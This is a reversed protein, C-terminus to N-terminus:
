FSCSPGNITVSNRDLSGLQGEYLIDNIYKKAFIQQLPNMKKLDNVWMKALHEYNDQTFHCFEEQSCQVSRSRKSIPEEIESDSPDNFIKPSDPVLLYETCIDNVGPESKTITTLDDYTEQNIIFLMDNFYWLPSVFNQGSEKSSHLKKLQKRFNTRLSNIRKKVDDKTAQPCLERYM